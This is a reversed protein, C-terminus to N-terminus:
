KGMMEMYLKKEEPTLHSLREVFQITAPLSDDMKHGNSGKAELKGRLSFNSGFEISMLLVALLGMITVILLALVAFYQGDQQNSVCNYFRPWRRRRNGKRDNITIRVNPSGANADLFGSSKASVANKTAIRRRRHHLQGDQSDTM